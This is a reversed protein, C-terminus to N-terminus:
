KRKGLFYAGAGVAALLVAGGLVVATIWWQGATEQPEDARTEAVVPRVIETDFSYVQTFEEGGANEYTLTITGSAAGYKEKDTHGEDMDLTGIFLNLGASGEAGGALDGIFATKLAKMGMGTVDCRVNFVESRGLNLVQFDLPITDGSTVKAAVQPVTLEVQLPQVVNVSFSGASSCSVAKPDDYQMDLTFSYLGEPTNRDVSFRFSIGASEEKGLKGLFVTEADDLLEFHNDPSSIKVVMNQVSKITSTNKLSIAANFEGGATVPDPTIVCSTMLVVPASTPTEAAPVTEKPHPDKGDSITVYVTFSQSILQGSADAAEIYIMVPYVGMYREPSLTLDFRVYYIKATRRTGSTKQESLKFVKQYNKYVFPSNETAGLDVKATLKNDSLAGDAVLPLVIVAKGGSTTPVYGKAYSSTMGDYVNATDLHFSVASTTEPLIVSDGQTPDSAPETTEAETPTEGTEKAPTSEPEKETKSEPVEASASEPEEAPTSGPEEESVEETEEAAAERSEEAPTSESDEAATSVTKEAPISKTEEPVTSWPEEVATSGPEEAETSETEEAAAEGTGEAATSEPAKTLTDEAEPTEGALGESTETAASTKGPDEAASEEAFAPVTSMLCLLAAMLMCILKKRM